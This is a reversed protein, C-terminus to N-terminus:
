DQIDPKTTVGNRSDFHTHRDHASRLRSLPGEADFVEGSVHLDGKIQVTGDSQLKLFSGSAHVFWLEGDPAPPPPRKSSFARGVIVGNEADAEQGIVFVQDGPSPPCVMGWGAGTWASLIPLWGTLVGEPQLLVRATASVPDISAITAFRPRGQTQDMRHSQMKLSNLLREM